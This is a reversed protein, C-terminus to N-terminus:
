AVVINCGTTKEIKFSKFHYLLVKELQIFWIQFAFGLTQGFFLQLPFVNKCIAFHTKKEIKKMKVGEEFRM